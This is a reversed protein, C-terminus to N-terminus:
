RIWFKIDKLEIFNQEFYAVKIFKRMQWYINFTLVYIKNWFM